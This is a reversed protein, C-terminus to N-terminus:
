RHRWEWPPVPDPDTWLGRREARAKNEADEYLLRDAPSQENAYKRYWWALGARVMRLFIEQPVDGHKEQHWGLNLAVLRAVGALQEKTAADILQAALSAYAAFDGAKDM